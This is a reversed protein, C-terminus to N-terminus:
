SMDVVEEAPWQAPPHKWEHPDDVMYLQMSSVLYEQASLTCLM